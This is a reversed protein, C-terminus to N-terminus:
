ISAKRDNQFDPLDTYDLEDIHFHLFEHNM